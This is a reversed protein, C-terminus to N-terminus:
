EWYNARTHYIEFCNGICLGVDCRACYITTYKQTAKGTHHKSRDACVKCTRQAHGKQKSGTGPIRSNTESPNRSAARKRKQGKEPQPEVPLGVPETEPDVPVSETELEETEPLIFDQEMAFRNSEEVEYDSDSDNLIECLEASTVYRPQSPQVNTSMGPVRGMIEQDLERILPAMNTDSTPNLGTEESWLDADSMKARAGLLEYCLGIPLVCALHTFNDRAIFGRITYASCKVNTRFRTKPKKRSATHQQHLMAEQVGSLHALRSVTIAESEQYGGLVVLLYRKQWVLAKRYSEARLYKGLLNKVYARWRDRDQALNIWDRDDYGVERLDM